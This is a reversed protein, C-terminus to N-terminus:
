QKLLKETTWVKGDFVMITYIDPPFTSINIQKPQFIDPTTNQIFYTIFRNNWANGQVSFEGISGGVLLGGDDIKIQASVKFHIIFIAIATYIFKKM